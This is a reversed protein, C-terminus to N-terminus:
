QHQRKSLSPTPHQWQWQQQNLCDYIDSSYVSFGSWWSVTQAYVPKNTFYITKFCINCHIQNQMQQQRDTIRLV